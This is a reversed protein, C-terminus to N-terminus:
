LQITKSFVTSGYVVEVYFLGSGLNKAPVIVDACNETNVSTSYVLKAEENKISIKAIGIQSNFNIVINGAVAEATIKDVVFSRETSFSSNVVKLPMSGPDLDDRRILDGAFVFQTFVLTLVVAFRGMPSIISNKM